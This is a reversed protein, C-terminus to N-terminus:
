GRDPEGTTTPLLELTTYEDLAALLDTLTWRNIEPQVCGVPVADTITAYYAGREYPQTIRWIIRNVVYILDGKM